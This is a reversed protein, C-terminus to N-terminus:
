GSLPLAMKFPGISSPRQLCLFSFKSSIASTSNGMPAIGHPKIVGTAYAILLIILLAISLSIRVTLAQAMRKNRDKDEHTTGKLFFILASFLSIFIAIFLVIILVKAFM